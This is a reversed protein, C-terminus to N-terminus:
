KAEGAMVAMSLMDLPEGHRLRHGRLLGERVFGCKEYARIGRENDADTILWVRRLRMQGFAHALLTRIADTGYGRGWYAKEGISVGLEAKGHLEDINVLAINGIPKGGHTEIIWSRRMPDDETARFRASESEFSALPAESMHLWHLVDPDSYWQVFLPIDAATRFRLRVLKGLLPSGSAITL